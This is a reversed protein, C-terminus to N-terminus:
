LDDMNDKDRTPEHGALFEDPCDMKQHPDSDPDLEFDKHPDPDPDLDPPFPLLDALFTCGGQCFGNRNV